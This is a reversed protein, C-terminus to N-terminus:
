TTSPPNLTAIDINQFNDLVTSNLRTNGAAANRLMTAWEAPNSLMTSHSQNVTSNRLLQARITKLDRLVLSMGPIEARMASLIAAENRSWDRISDSDLHMHEAIENRSRATTVGFRDLAHNLSTRQDALSQQVFADHGSLVTQLSQAAAEPLMGSLGNLTSTDGSSFARGDQITSHYSAAAAGGAAANRADVGLPDAVLDRFRNVIGGTSSVLPIPSRQLIAEPASTGINSVFANLNDLAGGLAGTGPARSDTVFKLAAFLSTWLGVIFLLMIIASMIEHNIIGEEFIIPRNLGTGKNMFTITEQHFTIQGLIIFNFSLVAGFIAPAFAYALLADIKLFSKVQDFGVLEYVLLPSLVMFAWIIVIRALLVLALGLFASLVLLAIVISAGVDIFLDTISKSNQMRYVLDEIKVLNQAILPVIVRSTDVDDFTQFERIYVHIVATDRKYNLYQLLTCNDSVGQCNSTDSARETTGLPNSGIDYSGEATKTIGLAGMLGENVALVRQYNEKNITDGFLTNNTNEAVNGITYNEKVPLFFMFNEIESGRNFVPKDPQGEVRKRKHNFNVAYASKFGKCDVGDCEFSKGGDILSPITFAIHTAVSSVDIVFRIGLWSFNVLILAAAVKFIKQTFFTGADEGQFIMQAGWFLMLFIFSINVMNRVFTWFLFLTPVITPDMLVDNSLLPGMMAIVIWLIYVLVSTLISMWHTVDSMKVFAAAETPFLFWCGVVVLLFSFIRKM